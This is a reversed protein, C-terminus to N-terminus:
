QTLRGNKSKPANRKEVVVRTELVQYKNSSCRRAGCQGPCKLSDGTPLFSLRDRSSQYFIKSGPTPLM